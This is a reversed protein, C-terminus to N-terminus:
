QSFQQARTSNFREHSQVNVQLLVVRQHQSLCGMRPGVPQWGSQRPSFVQQYQCSSSCNVNKPDSAIFLRIELKFLTLGRERFIIYIKKNHCMGLNFTMKVKAISLTFVRKLIDNETSHNFLLIVFIRAQGVQASRLTLCGWGCHWQLQQSWARRKRPCVSSKPGGPGVASGEM